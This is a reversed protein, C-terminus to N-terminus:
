RFHELLKGFRSRIDESATKKSYDQNEGCFGKGMENMLFCGLWFDKRVWIEAVLLGLVDCM